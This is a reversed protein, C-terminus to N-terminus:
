APNNEDIRASVEPAEDGNSVPKELPEEVVKQPTTHLMGLGKAVSVVAGKIDVTGDTPLLAKLAEAFQQRPRRFLLAIIGAYAALGPFFAVLMDWGITAVGEIFGLWDSNPKLPIQPAEPMVANKPVVVITKGRWADQLEQPLSEVPVSGFEGKYDPLVWESTTVVNGELYPPYGACGAFLLVFALFFGLINKNMNNMIM